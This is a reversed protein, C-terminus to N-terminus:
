SYIEGLAAKLREADATNDGSDPEKLEVYLNRVAPELRVTGPASSGLAVQLRRRSYDPVHVTVDSAVRADCAFRVGRELEEPTLKDREKKSAPSLGGGTVVVRCRGCVKQGGCSADIPEGLARAADLVTQGEKVDGSLGSPQFTLRFSM